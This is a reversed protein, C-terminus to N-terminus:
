SPITPDFSRGPPTAGKILAQRLIPSNSSDFPLLDYSDPDGKKADINLIVIEFTVGKGPVGGDSCASDIM